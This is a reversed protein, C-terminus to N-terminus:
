LSRVRFRKTEQIVNEAKMAETIANMISVPGDIKNEKADKRPFVNGNADEHAVVNSMQWSLCKNGDHHIRKAVISAEIERMAPSMTKVNQGVEAIVLKKNHELLKQIFFKAQWPDICIAKPTFSDILKIIDELVLLWDTEVGDHVILENASQFAKYMEGNKSELQARNTYCKSFVTYHREEKDNQNKKFDVFVLGVACLDLKSALDIGLYCTKGVFSNLKISTDALDRWQSMNFFTTNAMVWVNLYKTLYDNQESPYNKAKEMEQKINDEYISVGFNPNAKRLADMTFPDDTKDIGYIICFISDNPIVDNLVNVCEDHKTKCFSYYNKGATTISVLLPQRRAGMGKKQSQYLESNPHEHLEDLIACSPSAGDKPRAVIKEFISSNNCKIVSKYPTINFYQAFDKDAKVMNYAPDFVEKAQKLSTAACYVEAGPENDACLCYLGIVSAFISKGNKRPVEIYVETFRRLDNKKKLWGFINCLVFCQWPELKIRRKELSGIAWAGKTHTMLEAFTCVREAHKISFYYPYDRDQSKELDSIFRKCAQKVLDSVVISGDLVDRAYKKALLVHNEKM